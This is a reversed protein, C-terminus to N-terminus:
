GDISEPPAISVPEDFAFYRSDMFHGKTIMRETLVRHTKLDVSVRFWVPTGEDILALEAIRRGDRNRIALLRVARAYPTWRFWTRTRFRLGAGYQGLQWTAGPPKLWQRRGVIVNQVGRNTRYRMRDPARLWYSTAGFSGPGSTVRESERASRLRRMTAQARALIRRARANAHVQWRAPLTVTYTRGADRVIVHLVDTQEPVRFRVCATGCSTTAADLVRVPVRPPRGPDPWRLCLDIEDAYAVKADFPAFASAPLALARERAVSFRDAPPTGRPWPLPTEECVTAYRAASFVRPDSPLSLDRASRLLRLMPAALESIPPYRLPTALLMKDKAPSISSSPTVPANLVDMVNQPPQKYSGQAFFIQSAFLLLFLLSAFRFSLPKM